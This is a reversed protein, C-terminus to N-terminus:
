KLCYDKFFFFFAKKVQNVYPKVECQPLLHELHAETFNSVGIARCKGEAHLREFTRWM